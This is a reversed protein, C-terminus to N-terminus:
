LTNLKVISDRHSVSVSVLKTTFLAYIGLWEVIRYLEEGIAKRWTNSMTLSKDELEEELYQLTTYLTDGIDRIDRVDAGKFKDTLEALRESTKTISNINPYLVKLPAVDIGGKGLFFDRFKGLVEEGDELEVKRIGPFPKTLDEPTLVLSSLTAEFQSLAQRVGHINPVVDELLEVFEPISGSFASPKFVDVDRLAIYGTEIVDRSLRLERKNLKIVKFDDKIAFSKLIEKAKSNVTDFHTRLKSMSIAETGLKNDSASQRLLLIEGALKNIDDM